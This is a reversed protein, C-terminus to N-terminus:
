RSIVGARIAAQYAEWASQTAAQYAEIRPTMDVGYTKSTTTM